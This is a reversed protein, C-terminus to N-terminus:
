YIIDIYIRSRIDSKIILFSSLNGVIIGGCYNVPYYHGQNQNKLKQPLHATGLAIPFGIVLQWRLKSQHAIRINCKEINAMVHVLNLLCHHSM